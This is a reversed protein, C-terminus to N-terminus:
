ALCSNIGPILPRVYVGETDDYPFVHNTVLTDVRLGAALPIFGMGGSVVMPNFTSKLDAPKPNPEVSTDLVFGPGALFADFSLAESAPAIRTTLTNMEGANRLNTPGLAFESGGNGENDLVRDYNYHYTFDLVGNVNPEALPSGVIRVMPLGLTLADAPPNPLTKDEGLLDLTHRDYYFVGMRVISLTIFWFQYAAGVVTEPYDPTFANKPNTGPVRHVTPRRPLNELHFRLSAKNTAKNWKVDAFANRVGSAFDVVQDGPVPGIGRILNVRVQGQTNGVDNIPGGRTQSQGTISLGALTGASLAASKLFSRRGNNSQIKQENNKM